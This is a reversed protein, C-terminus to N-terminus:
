NTIEGVATFDSAILTDDEEYVIENFINEVGISQFKAAM